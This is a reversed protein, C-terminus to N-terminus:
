RVTNISRKERMTTPYPADTRGQAVFRNKRGQLPSKPPTPQLWPADNMGVTPYLVATLRKTSRYAPQFQDLAHAPLSVTPVICNSFRKKRGQFRFPKAAPSKFTKCLRFTFKELINLMLVVTLPDMCRNAHWRDHKFGDSQSLTSLFTDM